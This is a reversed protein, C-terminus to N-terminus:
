QVQLKVTILQTITSIETLRLLRGNIQVKAAAENIRPQVVDRNIVNVVLSVDIPLNGKGVTPNGEARLVIQGNQVAIRENITVDFDAIPSGIKAQVELLNGPQIKVVLDSLGVVGGITVPNAKIQRKIETNLYSESIQAAIDPTGTATPRVPLPASDKGTGFYWLAGLLLAIVGLIFGFLMLACGAVWPIGRRSRQVQGPSPFAAPRGNPQYVM